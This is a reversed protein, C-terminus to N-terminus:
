ATEDFTSAYGLRAFSGPAQSPLAGSPRHSTATAMVVERM